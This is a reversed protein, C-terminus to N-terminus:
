KINTENMEIAHSLAYDFANALDRRRDPTMPKEDYLSSCLEQLRKFTDSEFVYVKDPM